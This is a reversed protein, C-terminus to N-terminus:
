IWGGDSGCKGDTMCLFRHSIPRSSIPFLDLSTLGFWRQRNGHGLTLLPIFEDIISRRLKKETLGAILLCGYDTKEREPWGCYFGSVSLSVGFSQSRIKSSPNRFRLNGFIRCVQRLSAAKSCGGMELGPSLKDAMLEIYPRCVLESMFWRCPTQSGCM